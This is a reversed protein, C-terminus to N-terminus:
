AIRRRVRFHRLVGTISVVQLIGRKEGIAGPEEPAAAGRQQRAAGPREGTGM